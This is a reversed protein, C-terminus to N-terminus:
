ASGACASVFRTLDTFFESRMLNEGFCCISGSLHSFIVDIMLSYMFLSFTVYGQQVSDYGGHNWSTSLSLVIGSADASILSFCVSVDTRPETM